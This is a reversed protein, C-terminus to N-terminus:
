TKEYSEFIYKNIDGLYLPFSINSAKVNDLGELQVEVTTNKDFEKSEDNYKVGVNANIDFAGWWKAAIEVNVKASSSKLM